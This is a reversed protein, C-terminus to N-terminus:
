HLEMFTQMTGSGCVCKFKQSVACEKVRLSWKSASNISRSLRCRRPVWFISPCRELLVSRFASRHASPTASMPHDLVRHKMFRPANSFADVFVTFLVSAPNRSRHCLAIVAEIDRRACAPATTAIDTSPATMCARASIAAMVRGDLIAIATESSASETVAAVSVMVRAVSKAIHVVSATMALASVMLANEMELAAMTRREMMELAIDRVMATSRAATTVPTDM